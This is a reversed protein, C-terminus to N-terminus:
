PQCVATRACHVRKGGTAGEAPEDRPIYAENRVYVSRSGQVYENGVFRWPGSGIMHEVGLPRDAPLSAIREPHRAIATVHHGRGSLEKLIRSGANGSAGILAITM